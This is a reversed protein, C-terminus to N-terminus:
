GPEIRRSDASLGRIEIEAATATVDAKREELLDKLRV